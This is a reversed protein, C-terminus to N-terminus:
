FGRQPREAAVNVRLPRGDLEQGDLASIADDLEDKSAMTVFGFGRSRGTERDYVVTANVVEGHESFLQVLRSDDVQWPLNGVYARFASAFQRPPREMRAGRPSARNVNLLRGSIDYRNFMEIAKDAEEITSMTVFGFGRSQGSERNYIVEAVEVVGAQDFLQALGESDVDYPLNGVYVKAEEPPEVAAYEGDGDGGEEEEDGSAVVEEEAEGVEEDFAEGVVEEEEEEDAWEVGAEVADSSAVLPALPLRRNARLLLPAARTSSSLLPLSVTPLLKHAPPLAADAMAMALSRLSMTTAM